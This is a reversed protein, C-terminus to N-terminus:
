RAEWCGPWAFSGDRRSKYAINIGQDFPSWIDSYGTLAAIDNWTPWDWQGLGRYLGNTSVVNPDWSSECPVVVDVVFDLWEEVGGAARWGQVFSAVVDVSGYSPELRRLNVGEVPLYLASRRAQLENGRGMVERRVMEGLYAAQEVAQAYGMLTYGSELHELDRDPADASVLPDNFNDHIPENHGLVLGTSAVMM